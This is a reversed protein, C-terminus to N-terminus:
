KIKRRLKRRSNRKNRAREKYVYDLEMEYADGGLDFILDEHTQYYGFENLFSLAKYKLKIQDLVRM